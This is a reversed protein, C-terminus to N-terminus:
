RTHQVMDIITRVGKGESGVLYGVAGRYEVESSANAATFLPAPRRSDPRPNQNLHVSPKSPGLGAELVGQSLHM